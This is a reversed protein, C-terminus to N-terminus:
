KENQIRTAFNSTIINSWYMGMQGRNEFKNTNFTPDQLTKGLPVTQISQINAFGNFVFDIVLIYHSLMQHFEVDLTKHEVEKDLKKLVKLSFDESLYDIGSVLSPEASQYWTLFVARKLAEPGENESEILNSYAIFVKNYEEFIGSKELQESKEEISGSIKGVELKLRKERLNLEELNM